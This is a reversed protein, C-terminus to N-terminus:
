ARRYRGGGEREGDAAHAKGRQSEGRSQMRKKGESECEMARATENRVYTSGIKRTCARVPAALRRRLQLLANPRREVCDGHVARRSLPSASPVVFILVARFSAALLPRRRRARFIRLLLKAVCQALPARLTAARSHRLFRPKERLLAAPRLLTSRMPLVVFRRKRLSSARPAALCHM